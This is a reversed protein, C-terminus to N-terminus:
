KRGLLKKASQSAETMKSMSASTDHVLFRNMLVNIGMSIVHMQEIADRVGVSSQNVAQSISKIRDINATINKAHELQETSSKAISDNRLTVGKVRNELQDLQEAVNVVEASGSGALETADHISAVTDHAARQLEDMKSQIEVTTKQTRAALTRVEDAVVAFGRGQEGARAAEIAANLALLNTQDAISTITLLVEKIDNVESELRGVVESSTRLNEALTNIQRSAERSKEASQRSEDAASISESSAEETNRTVEHIAEIYQEMARAVDITTEKQATTSATTDTATKELNASLSELNESSMNVQQVISEVLELFTNFGLGVAKLEEVSQNPVRQTLDGAGGSINDFINALQSIPSALKIALIWAIGVCMAIVFVMVGLTGYLQHNELVVSPRLAEEVDIESMLAWQVGDGLNVPSYSSYVPVDRYDAFEKFASNGALADKVGPTNVPQVGVTSGKAKVKQVVAEMGGNNLASFYGEPDELFFRSESILNGDSGVLYTEASDGMGVTKWKGNNTMIQNIRDIPIQYVLVGQVQGNILIPTGLFAADNEYSPVYDAFNTLVTNGGELTLAKKYAESLGSEAYPGSRLNTAYDLEKFISYVVDGSPSVIFVDYYGWTELFRVFDEHYTEHHHDYSESATGRNLNHKEGLGHSNAAIYHHQMYQAYGSMGSYQGQWDASKQNQRSYEKNFSDRYYSELRNDPTGSLSPDSKVEEFSSIFDTTASKVLTSSAEQTLQARMQAFYNELQIKKQERSATLQGQSGEQLIELADSSLSQNLVVALLSTSLIGVLAFYLILRNKLSM